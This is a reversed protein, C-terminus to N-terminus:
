FYELKFSWCGIAVPATMFVIVHFQVLALVLTFVVVFGDVGTM